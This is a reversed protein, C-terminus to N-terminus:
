TEAARRSSCEHSDVIFRNRPRKVVLFAEM